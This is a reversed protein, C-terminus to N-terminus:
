SADNWNQNTPTYAADFLSYQSPTGSGNAVFLPDVWYNTANYSNNPFGSTAGYRYVGNSGAPASLPGSTWTSAFFNGDAAYHGNPAFYSVVYTTGAAVNVANTFRVMQWGSGSGAPFTVTALLTGSATWLNGIHTGTNGAGQYFRLGILSGNVSPTFKVGLEVASPDNAATVSPVSSTAFLKSISP